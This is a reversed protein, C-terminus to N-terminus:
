RRRRHWRSSCAVHEAGFLQHAEPLDQRCWRDRPVASQRNASRAPPRVTASPTDTGSPPSRFAPSGSARHRRHRNTNARATASPPRRGPVHLVPGQRDIPVSSTSGNPWTQVIAVCMSSTDGSSICRRMSAIVGAGAVFYHPGYKWPLRGDRRSATTRPATHAAAGAGASPRPPGCYTRSEIPSHTEARGPHPHQAARLRGLRNAQRRMRPASRTDSTLRTVPRM